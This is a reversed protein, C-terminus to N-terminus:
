CLVGELYSRVSVTDGTPMTASMTPSGLFPALKLKVVIGSAIFSHSAESDFLVTIPYSHIFCSGIIVDSADKAEDRKMVYV